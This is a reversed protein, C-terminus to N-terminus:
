LKLGSNTLWMKDDIELNGMRCLGMETPVLIVRACLLLEMLDLAVGARCIKLNGLGAPIPRINAHLLHHTQSPM